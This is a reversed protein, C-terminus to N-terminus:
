PDWSASSQCGTLRPRSCIRTTWAPVMEWLATNDKRTDFPPYEQFFRLTKLYINTIYHLGSFLDELRLGQWFGVIPEQEQRLHAIILTIQTESGHSLPPRPAQGPIHDVTNTTM